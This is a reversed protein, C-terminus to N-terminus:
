AFLSWTYVYSDLDIIEMNANSIAAKDGQHHIRDQLMRNRFQISSQRKNNLKVHQKKANNVYKDVESSYANSLAYEMPPMREDSNVQMALSRKNRNLMGLGGSRLM